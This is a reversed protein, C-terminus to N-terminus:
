SRAPRAQGGAASVDTTNGRVSTECRMCTADALPSSLVAMRVSGAIQFRM